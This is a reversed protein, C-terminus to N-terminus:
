RQGTRRAVWWLRAALLDAAQDAGATECAVLALRLMDAPDGIAVTITATDTNWALALYGAPDAKATLRTRTRATHSTATITAAPRATHGPEM